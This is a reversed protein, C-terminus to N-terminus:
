KKRGMVLVIPGCLFLLIGGIMMGISAMAGTPTRNEELILVKDLNIGPFSGKILRAEEADLSAIRNIILGKIGASDGLGDPISGVTNFRGTKILVAFTSLDPWVANEPVNELSGHEEELANLGVIFPHSGSIVPYYAHNVKASAPPEASPSAGEAMEYEFICGDWVCIHEGLKVYNNDIETGSELDALSVDLPESGTGSSVTYENCGYYCLFGGGIMMALMIRWM